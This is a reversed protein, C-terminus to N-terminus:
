KTSDSRKGMDLILRLMEMGNVKSSNTKTTAKLFRIKSMGKEYLVVNHDSCTIGVTCVPIYCSSYSVGDLKRKRIPDLIGNTLDYLEEKKNLAAFKLSLDLKDAESFQLDDLTYNKFREDLVSFLKSNKDCRSPAILFANLVVGALFKRLDNRDECDLFGGVKIDEVVEYEGLVYQEGIGIHTELICVNETTGLYLAAEGVRNARNQPMSPPYSWQKKDSFDVESDYRRIRYLKTGKKITAAGFDFDVGFMSLLIFNPILDFLSSGYYLVDYKVRNVTDIDGSLVADFLRTVLKREEEVSM